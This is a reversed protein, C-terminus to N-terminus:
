LHKGGTGLTYGEDILKKGHRVLKQREKGYDM